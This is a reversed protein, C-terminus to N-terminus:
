FNGLPNSSNFYGKRVAFGQNYRANESPTIGDAPVIVGSHVYKQSNAYNTTDKSWCSLGASTSFDDPYKLYGLMSTTQGPENITEIDKGGLVYKIQHFLYMMANNILSIENEAVYANNNDSKRVQGQINIYSESPLLYIDQENITIRIEGSKNINSKSHAHPYYESFNMSCISEDYEFPETINLIENSTEHLLTNTM